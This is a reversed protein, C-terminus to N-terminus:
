TVFAYIHTDPQAAFCESTKNGHTDPFTLHWHFQPLITSVGGLAGTYAAVTRVRVSPSKLTINVEASFLKM